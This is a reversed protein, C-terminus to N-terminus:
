RRRRMLGLVLAVLGVVGAGFLLYQMQLESVSPPNYGEGTDSGSQSSDDSTPLVEPANVSAGQAVLQYKDTTAVFGYIFKGDVSIKVQGDYGYVITVDHEGINQITAKAKVEERGAQKWIVKVGQEVNFSELIGGKSGYGVVLVSYEDTAVGVVDGLSEGPWFPAGPVYVKGTVKYGKPLYYGTSTADYAYVASVTALLIIFFLPIITKRM